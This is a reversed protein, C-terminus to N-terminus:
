TESGREMPAEARLLAGATDPYRERVSLVEPLADFFRDLLEHDFHTGRQARMFDVAGAVSWAPRYPRDITLADFVDAIAAIRGVLPIESGFLANPYGTGDVREHHTLAVQAALDLLASGSGSLMRHGIECHEEAAEREDSTLLAPNTLISTPLAVKGVDHLQTALRIEACGAADLGLRAALIASYRSMRDVHSGVAPDGAEAAVALHRLEGADAPM